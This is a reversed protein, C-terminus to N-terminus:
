AVGVPAHTCYSTAQEVALCAKCSKVMVELDEAIAAWWVHSRALEKLRSIGMHEKHLEMLIVKKKFLDLYGGCMLCSAEMSLEDM